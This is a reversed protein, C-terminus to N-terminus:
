FLIRTLEIGLIHRCRFAKTSPKSNSKAKRLAKEATRRETIDRSTIIVILGKSPNNIFKGVSEVSLWSGRSNRIRYEIPASTVSIRVSSKFFDFVRERDDRHILDFINKGIVESPKFGLVQELSPNEDLITGDPLIISIIDSVNEIVSRYHNESERLLDEMRKREILREARAILHLTDVVPLEIYDDAGAELGEVVNSVDKRLGSIPLIPLSRLKEDARIWRCLEIGDGNPMMVDSIILDLRSSEQACQFGERGDSATLVRYGAQQFVLETIERQEISDNVILVTKKDSSNM